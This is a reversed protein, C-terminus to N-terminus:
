VSKHDRATFKLLLMSGSDQVPCLIDNPVNRHSGPRPCLDKIKIIVYWRM